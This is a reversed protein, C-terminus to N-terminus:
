RTLKSIIRMGGVMTLAAKIKMNTSTRRDFLVRVRYERVISMCQDYREALEHRKEYTLAACYIANMFMFSATAGATASLGLSGKIVHRSCDILEFMRPNVNRHMAGAANVRYRYLPASSRAVTEGDEVVRMVFLLDEGVAIKEDFRLQLEDLRKKSFIKNSASWGDGMNGYFLGEVYQGTTMSDVAADERHEGSMERTMGVSAMCVDQQDLMGILTEVFREDVIDDADVFCVYEGKCRDIGRNRTASVGKNKQHFVRIRSDQEGLDDCRKSSGDTSGDDILLIEIRAHTQACISEVCERLFDGPNYVPVIVSVLPKNKM